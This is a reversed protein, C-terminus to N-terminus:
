AAPLWAVPTPLTEVTPVPLSTAYTLHVLMLHVAEFASRLKPAIDCQLAEAQWAQMISHAQDVTVHLIM